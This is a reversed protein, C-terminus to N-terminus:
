KIPEVQSKHFLHYTKPYMYTYDDDDDELRKGGATKMWTIGSLRSHEGKKVKFGSAQWGGFTKCDIYPLGDYGLHRMDM